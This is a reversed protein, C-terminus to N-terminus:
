PCPSHYPLEGLHDRWRARTLVHGTVACVHDVVREVDLDWLRATGDDGSTALTRGGPGLVARTVPGAHGVLANGTVAPHAPDTVDWLTFTGDTTGTVLTQAAPGFALASVPGNADAPAGLPKPRAPATVDWLRLEGEDTAVALTHGRPAFGVADGRLTRAVRAPRTPDRTDWFRVRGTDDALALVRGDASFAFSSDVDAGTAAATGLLRPHHADRVDWLRIRDSAGPEGIDAADGWSGSVSVSKIRRQEYEAMTRGDGSFSLATITHDRRLSTRGLRRPHAPDGADWLHTGGDPDAVALLHGRPAFVASAGRLEGLEEPRSPDATDWLRVKEGADCGAVLTRGDPSVGGVAADPCGTLLPTPSWVRIVRDDTILSRGDRGFAVSLGEHVAQGLPEGIRAPLRPDATNWLQVGADEVVALTRGDPSFAAAAVDSGELSDLPIPLRKPHGLDGIDWLRVRQGGGDTALTRADPSFVVDEAGDAGLRLTSLSALHAPRATDWLRVVGDDSGATALVHGVPSFVPLDGPLARGSREPHRPDRLDWVFTRQGGAALLRGDPSLAVGNGVTDDPLALSALATPHRPDATRWIRIRGDRDDGTALLRGDASLSVASGRLAPGVRRPRTVDRIDWLRVLRDPGVLVLLRGRTDTIPGNGFSSIDGETDPTRRSQDPTESFLTSNGAGLLSTLTGPSRRMRYSAIDLQAALSANQVRAPLGTGRLQDAEAAIQRAVAVSHQARATARQQFAFTAAACVVLVLATLGAVLTRLRRTARAAARQESDRAATGAGLFQAELATLEGQDTFTEEAVALRTGRYLAGPDRDLAHWVQAAETLGRHTRLRERDADIWGRLRPWGAILAEHALDVTDHDLTILRAHALRELVTRVDASRDPELEARAVPRRTDQTGDGPAILRLLIRRALMAQDPTLQCHVSEATRAIAGHLGGAAEYAEETLARGKRRRWTELLAHSLLPLAGPEGGAEDLMRATLSREVILGAAQAPRVVAARLEEPNMPGALVTAHRLAATLAPHQSCHGLFDARVCIVVCLRSTPDLCTLLRDIFRDREARDACLTYLEEFQDVILWTDGDADKPVLARDHTRVPHEGPTLVRLAAPRPLAAADWTRLRPILGARLLSSKGSGSPGFVATFRHATAAQLLQETLEDRGFFLHADAPEFRALGRYPSEADEDDARPAAATEAAAERWRAEWEVPEGGCARVYALAVPLTPLRAGAAAQSLTSAGQAARRAMVRYTPGGAEARLKRLDAAFRAVAGASPDLPNEPRGPM